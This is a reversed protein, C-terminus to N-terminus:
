PSSSGIGAQWILMSCERSKNAINRVFCITREEFPAFVFIVGATVILKSFMHYAVEQGAVVRPSVM